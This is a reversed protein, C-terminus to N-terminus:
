KLPPRVRSYPVCAECRIVHQSAGDGEHACTGLSPSKGISGARKMGLHCGMAPTRGIWCDAEKVRM